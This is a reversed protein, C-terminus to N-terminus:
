RAGTGARSDLVTGEGAEADGLEPATQSSLLDELTFQGGCEPCRAERLGTLNYGCVPCSVANRHQRRIRQMREAATERWLLITCLVWAVPAVSGGFAIAGARDGALWYIVLAAAGSLAVSAVGCLLTLRRRAPTWRVLDRWVWTWYLWIFLYAALWAAVFIPVTPGPSGLATLFGTVVLVLVSLPFIMVALLLRAVLQSM